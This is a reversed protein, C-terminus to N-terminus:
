EETTEDNGGEIDTEADAEAVDDEGDSQTLEEEDLDTEEIVEEDVTMTGAENTDTQVAAGGETQVTEDSEGEDTEDDAGAGGEGSSARYDVDEDAVSEVGDDGRTGGSEDTVTAEEGGDADDTVDEEDITMTGAENTDTHVAAGGETQVTEETSSGALGPTSERRSLGFALLAAGAGVQLLGSGRRSRITRLGTLLLAGGAVAPAIWTWDVSALETGPLRTGSAGGSGGTEGRQRDATTDNTTM